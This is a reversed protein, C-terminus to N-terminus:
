AKPLEKFPMQPLQHGNGNSPVIAHPSLSAPKLSPMYPQHPEQENSLKFQAIINQLAEAMEALSGASATVEEVQASMEEASASVEEVAASNEESVSAINEIAQTVEGSSASMEETAASNEEVVASVADTASVLQNSLGSMQGASAAIQAVERNVEKAASLIEELAQGAQNAQGVGREVEVSGENMAAVADSVTRQIDKILGSIEKTAGASKEALKRVEDAVVAFGKGHEGARAAEIAANLALLNTQSAIDEITEVIAGIQGSRHGMEQVKQASLSVKAQITEMGKMTATVTQAGGQAVQAAQESGQVGAQANASIEQIAVTIQSTIEAATSVMQTQEQAGKAVGQIAHSMQEVSAATRTVSEAQQATGKAVQQMTAAIQGTAQGAQNAASALQESAASLSSANETIQGIMERLKVIMEAFAVGLEDQDSKPNVQITLDGSAIRTAAEAMETLYLRTATLGRAVEGVEDKMRRFKDKATEAMDRNLNGVSMNKMAATIVALPGIVSRTLLIAFVIGFLSLLIGAAIIQWRMQTIADQAWINSFDAFNMNVETLKSISVDMQDVASSLTAPNGAKGSLVTDREPAYLAYADHYQKLANTEDTQLSSKGMRALTATFDASTTSLWENDYRSMTAAMQQDEKRATDVLASRQADSLEPNNLASLSTSLNKLHLNAEEINYIPVLMFGYLNDYQAKLLEAGIVGVVAIIIATIPIIAALISFKWLFKLNGFM